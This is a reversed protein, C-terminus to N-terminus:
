SIHASEKRSLIPRALASAAATRRATLAPGDILAVPTGTAGDLLLYVGQVSPLGQAPNDPHVTVSKIGIYDPPSRAGWAPM